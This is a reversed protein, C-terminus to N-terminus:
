EASVAHRLAQEFSQKFQNFSPMDIQAPNIRGDRVLQALAPASTDGVLGALEAKLSHPSDDNGSREELAACHQYPQGKLACILWAESKPKALMPVGLEAYNASTFGDQMSQLKQQWEGRSSSVTGDADRFLVVVVKQTQSTSLAQAIHALALANKYYYATERGHKKGPLRVKRPSEVKATDALQQKATFFVQQSDLLSYQLGHFAEALKDLMLCLPGHEFEETECCPKVLRALGMDSPGEGSLLLLM